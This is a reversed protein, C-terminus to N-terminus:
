HVNYSIMEVLYKGIEIFELKTIKDNNFSAKDYYLQLGIQHFSTQNETSVNLPANDDLILTGLAVSSKVVDTFVDSRLRNLLYQCDMEGTKNEDILDFVYECVKDEDAPITKAKFETSNLGITQSVNNRMKRRAKIKTASLPYTVNYSGDTCIEEIVAPFWVVGEAYLTWVVEGVELVRALRARRVLSNGSRLSHMRQSHTTSSLQKHEEDTRVFRASVYKEKAAAKLGGVLTKFNIRSNEHDNPDKFLVSFLADLRLKFWTGFLTFRIISMAEANQRISVLQSHSILGSGQTDIMDFVVKVM